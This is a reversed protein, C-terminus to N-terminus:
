EPTNSMTFDDVYLETLENFGSNSWGLIYGNQFANLYPGAPNAFNGSDLVLAYNKWVKMRANGSGTDLKFYLQIRMWKGYDAPSIFNQATPFNYGGMGPENYNARELMLYSGASPNSPSQPWLSSGLKVHGYNDDWIRFFKNNDGGPSDRHAYNSPIYLWYRVYVETLNNGMTFRQEVWADEDITGARYPFRLSSTGGHARTPSVSAQYGPDAPSGNWGFGAMAVPATLSGSEFDDQLYIVANTPPAPAVFVTATDALTGGQQTAIVRFSGAMGGPTYVGAASIDGGTAGWTVPAVSTTLDEHIASASFTVIGDAAVTADSPFVLLRTVPSPENPGLGAKTEGAACSLFLAALALVLGSRAVQHPPGSSTGHEM